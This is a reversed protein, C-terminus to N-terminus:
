KIKLPNMQYQNRLPLKYFKKPICLFHRVQGTSYLIPAWHKAVRFIFYLLLNRAYCILSIMLGIRTKTKKNHFLDCVCGFDTSPKHYTQYQIFILLTITTVQGALAAERPKPARSQHLWKMKDQIRKCHTYPLVFKFGFQQESSDTANVLWLMLMSERFLVLLLQSKPYMLARQQPCLGPM